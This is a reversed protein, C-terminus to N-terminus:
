DRDLRAVIELHPTQPFQDIAWLGELRYGGDVLGRLDRAFTPADCSVMALRRPARGLLAKVASPGMGQRPPNLIASAPPKGEEALFKEVPMRFVTLPRRHRKAGARAAEAAAASAEVLTVERGEAAFSMGFLGVGGYLDWLRGVTGHLAERVCSVLREAGAANVQFFAEGPYTYEISGVRQRIEGDGILVHRTGGGRRGPSRGVWVVSRIVPSSEVLSAALVAAWGPPHAARGRWVIVGGGRLPDRRLIWRWETGRALMQEIAKASEPELSELVKRSAEHMRRVTPDVILCHDVFVPKHGGAERLALRPRGGPCETTLEIKSRYRLAPGITEPLPADFEFKGIRKLADQLLDRKYERQQTEDITMWACGGCEDQWNCPADRRAPHSRVHKVATAAVWNKKEKEVVAEVHEGPWANRLMWVRGDLRALARGGAVMREAVLVEPTSKDTM